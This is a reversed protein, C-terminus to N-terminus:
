QMSLYLIIDGIMDDPITKSLDPGSYISNRSLVLLVAQNRSCIMNVIEDIESYDKVSM